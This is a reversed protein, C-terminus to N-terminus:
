PPAGLPLSAHPTLYLPTGAEDLRRAGAAAIMAGNDTCLHPPPIRLSLSLRACAEQMRARLRSNAAVGGSVVVTSVGLRTALRTTKRVLVDVIAEQFGAAVEAPSLRDAPERQLYRVLATKLGSFSFDDSGPLYPRPFRVREPDAGRALREVQPGGPYGLGLLKAAKDFAEGAADDLTRGHERYSGFRDIRYLHTHGGSVVLSVAPYRIDAGGGPPIADSDGELFVAAGHGELHHVGILPVGWGYAAAKAFEVGVLLAGILGPGRTVAVADLRRPEVGARTVAERCVQDIVEVHRRCALEPVVGGYGGHIEEQSFVVNSLVRVGDQVVAAATEDCSTEIGLVLSM